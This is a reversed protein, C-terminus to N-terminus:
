YTSEPKLMAEAALLHTLLMANTENAFQIPLGHSAESFEVYKAGPIQQALAKGLTPPAIPDHAASAVLTPIGALTQLQSTTDAHRMARLQLKTIPPQDALDHGFLPALSDALVNRNATKFGEPSLLLQLFAHRRQRRTGIVSRMGLWFMRGTMPAAHRGNAFTCLLSLSRVRKPALIALKTAILGGLSHGIIHASPWNEADLIARVDEAMQDVTLEVGVPQSRGMGRNDFSLCCFKKALEAIQPRWGQGHVGVGQIFLVPAGAGEIDYTLKCQNHTLTRQM